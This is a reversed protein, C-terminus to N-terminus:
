GPGSGKAEADLLFTQFRLTDRFIRESPRFRELSKLCHLHNFFSFLDYQVINIVYIYIYM